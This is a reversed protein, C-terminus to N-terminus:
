FGQLVNGTFVTSIHPWSTLELQFQGKWVLSDAKAQLLVSVEGANDQVTTEVLDDATFRIGTQTFITDLIDYV